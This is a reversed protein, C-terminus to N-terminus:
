FEDSEDWRDFEDFKDHMDYGDLSGHDSFKLGKELELTVYGPYASSEFMRPTWIGTELIKVTRMKPLNQIASLFDDTAEESINEIDVIHLEVLELCPWHSMATSCAPLSMADINGFYVQSVGENQSASSLIALTTFAM